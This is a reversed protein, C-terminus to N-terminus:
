IAKRQRLKGSIEKIELDLYAGRQLTDRKLKEEELTISCHAFQITQKEESM